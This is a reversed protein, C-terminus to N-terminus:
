GIRFNDCAFIVTYDFATHQVRCMVNSMHALMYIFVYVIFIMMGDIHLIKCIITHIRQMNTSQTVPEHFFLQSV